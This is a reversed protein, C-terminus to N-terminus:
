KSHYLNLFYGLRYFDFLFLKPKKSTLNKIMQNKFLKFTTVIIFNLPFFSIKQKLFSMKTAKSKIIKSDLLLKLNELSAHHKDIFVISKELNLHYLPNNIHQIDINLKQLELILVLDEFGYKTLLSNFPTTILISKKVLINSTLAYKYKNKQRIEVPIAERKNGYIWRLFEDEKPTENKYIIGGFYFSATNSQIATLYNVIFNSDFPFMDCDLFIIWDFKAKKVLINRNEARGVNVKNYFIACDTFDEIKRNQNINESNTSCDDQILIEYFINLADCQSKLETVLPYVNYNYTPILISLM